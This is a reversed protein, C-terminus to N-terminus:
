LARVQKVSVVMGMFDTLGLVLLVQEEELPGSSDKEQCCWSM